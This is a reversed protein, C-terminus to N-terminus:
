ALAGIEEPLLGIFKRILFTVNRRILSAEKKDDIFDSSKFNRRHQLENLHAKIKMLMGGTPDLRSVVCM